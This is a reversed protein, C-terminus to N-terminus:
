DPAQGDPYYDLCEVGAINYVYLLGSVATHLQNAQATFGYVLPVVVPVHLPWQKEAKCLFVEFASQSSALRVRILVRFGYGTARCQEFDLDFQLRSSNFPEPVLRLGQKSAFSKRLRSENWGHATFMADLQDKTTM